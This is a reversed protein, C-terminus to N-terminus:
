CRRGCEREFGCVFFHWLREFRVVGVSAEKRCTHTHAICADSTTMTKAEHYVCILRSSRLKGIACDGGEHTYGFVRGGSLRRIYGTTPIDDIWRRMERM